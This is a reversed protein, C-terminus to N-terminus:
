PAAELALPVWATRMKRSGVEQKSGEWIAFAVQSRSAPRGSEPLPRVILVSWGEETRRGRGTSGSHGGPRLTGPGEAVLDQVPQKRPGAMLNGLERAPAYRRAM